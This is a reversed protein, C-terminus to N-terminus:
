KRQDRSKWYVFLALKRIETPTLRQDWAPMEGKRGNWITERLSSSDGGYIWNRDTLDPAGVEPGGKGDEGHCTACNEIFLPAGLSANKKDHDQGSLSLIYEIVSSIQDKDLINDRGFAAMEAFREEDHGSNIGFQITLEIEEPTGSWLWSADTLDPFGKQGKLNQGHCAACNDAYLVNTSTEYQDRISPDEALENIPRDLLHQNRDTQLSNAEALQVLVTERSSYNTLGRTFDDIYPWAPYLIWYGVSYLITLIYALIVTKPIPTDLEKIGDWEHGTTNQGSVEDREIQM